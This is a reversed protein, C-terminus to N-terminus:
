SILFTFEFLYSLCPGCYVKVLILNSNYLTAQLPFLLPSTMVSHSDAMKLICKSICYLTICIWTSRAPNPCYLYAYFICFCVKFIISCCRGKVIKNFVEIFNFNIFKFSKYTRPNVKPFPPSKKNRRLYIRRM